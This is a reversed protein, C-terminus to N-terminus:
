RAERAPEDSMEAPPEDPSQASTEAPPVGPDAAHALAFLRTREQPDVYIARRVKRAVGRWPSRGVDIAIALGAIVAAIGAVIFSWLYPLDYWNIAADFGAPRHPWLLAAWLAVGTVIALMATALSVLWPQVGMARALDASPWDAETAGADRRFESYASLTRKWNREHLISVPIFVILLAVCPWLSFSLTPLYWYEPM